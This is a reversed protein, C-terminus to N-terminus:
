RAALHSADLWPQTAVRCGEFSSEECLVAAFVYGEDHRLLPFM